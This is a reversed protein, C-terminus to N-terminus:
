QLDTSWLRLKNNITSSNFINATKEYIIKNKTIYIKQQKIKKVSDLLLNLDKIEIGLENIVVLQEDEKKTSIVKTKQFINIGISIVLLVYVLYKIKM